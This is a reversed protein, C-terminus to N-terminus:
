LDTQQVGLDIRQDSHAQEPNEVSRPTNDVSGGLGSPVTKARGSREKRMKQLMEEAPLDEFLFFM